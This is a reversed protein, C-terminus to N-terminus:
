FPPDPANWWPSPGLAMMEPDQTPWVYPMYDPIGPFYMSYHERFKRMLNSQHSLHFRDQGLWNPWERKIDFDLNSEFIIKTKEACTDPHGREVWEECIAYQYQLLAWEYRRWMLTAPHNVWGTGTMLASMIQMTETRQWRLRQNDLVRASAGFDAYPLFTQM